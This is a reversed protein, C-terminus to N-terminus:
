QTNNCPTCDEPHADLPIAQVFQVDCNGNSSLNTLLIQGTHEHQQEPAMGTNSFVGLDSEIKVDPVPELLIFIEGYAPVKVTQRPGIVYHKVRMVYGNCHGQEKMRSDIYFPIIAANM